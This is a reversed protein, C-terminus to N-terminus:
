KKRNHHCFVVAVTIALPIPYYKTTWMFCLFQVSSSITINEPGGNSGPWENASILKIRFSSCGRNCFTHTRTHTCTHKHAHTHAQTKHTCTHTHTHTHYLTHTRM